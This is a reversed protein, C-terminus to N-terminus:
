REKEASIYHNLIKEYAQKSQLGVVREKESGDAFFVVTPIGQIQYEEALEPLRDINLKAVLARGEYEAALQEIIPALKRCPPCSNSYFDLLVPKESSLVRAQLADPSDIDETARGEGPFAEKSSGNSLFSMGFLFGLFAGYLAGRYPNATLPCTGSSCQGYYGMLAGIGGGIVIALLMKIVAVRNM